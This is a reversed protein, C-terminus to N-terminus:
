LPMHSIFFANQPPLQTGIIHEQMHPFQGHSYRHETLQLEPQHTPQPVFSPILALMTVKASTKKSLTLPVVSHLVM